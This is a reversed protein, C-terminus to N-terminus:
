MPFMQTIWTLFTAVMTDTWPPEGSQACPMSHNYVRAYIIGANSKVSDYSSLDIGVPLMAAIDVATFMNKIDNTWTVTNADDQPM